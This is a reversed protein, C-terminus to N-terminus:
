RIPTHPFSPQASFHAELATMTALVVDERWPRGVLDSGTPWALLRAGAENVFAVLGAPDLVVLGHPVAQLLRLAQPLALGAALKGDHGAM